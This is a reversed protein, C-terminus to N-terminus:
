RVFAPSLWTPFWRGRCSAMGRTLPTVTSDSMNYVGSDRFPDEVMVRRAMSDCVFYICGARAGDCSSPLVSLSGRKSLFLSEGNLAKQEIWGDCKSSIKFVEFSHTRNGDGANLEYPDGLWRRVMLLHGGSEMLYHRLYCEEVNHSGLIDLIPFSPYHCDDILRDVTSVIPKGEKDEALELMYLGEGETLAYLNGNSFVMDLICDDLKAVVSGKGSQFLTIDGDEGHIMVAFVCRADDPDKSAVIKDIFISAEIEHHIGAMEPLPVIVKSLLNVLFCCCSASRCGRRPPIRKARDLRASRCDRVLVLWGGSFSGCCRADEMGPISSVHETANDPVSFLSGDPLTLWPFM